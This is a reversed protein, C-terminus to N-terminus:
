TDTDGGSLIDMLDINSENGNVIFEFMQPSWNFKWGDVERIITSDPNESTGVHVLEDDLKETVTVIEGRFERMIRHTDISGYYTDDGLDERVKLRTGVEVNEFNELM